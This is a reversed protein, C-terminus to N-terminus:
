ADGRGAEVAVRARLAAPLVSERYDATQESFWEVCPMSIVRAKIGEDALRTATEIALHVESGTGLFALDNGGGHQWRVYGGATVGAPTLDTSVLM